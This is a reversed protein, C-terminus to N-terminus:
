VSSGLVNLDSIYMSFRFFIRKHARMQGFSVVWPKLSLTSNERCQGCMLAKRQVMIYASYQGASRSVTVNVNKIHNKAHWVDDICDVSSNIRIKTKFVSVLLSNLLKM